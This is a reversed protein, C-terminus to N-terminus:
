PTHPFLAVAFRSKFIGARLQDPDEDGYGVNGGASSTGAGALRTFFILTGGSRLEPIPDWSGKLSGHSTVAILQPFQLAGNVTPLLATAPLTENFKGDATMFKLSLGTIAVRPGAVVVGKDEFAPYCTATPAAPWTITMTLATPDVRMGQATVYALMTSASDAKQALIAQGNLGNVARCNEDLSITTQGFDSGGGGGCSALVLACLPLLRRATATATM